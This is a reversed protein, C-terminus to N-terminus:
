FSSLQVQKKVEDTSGFNDSIKITNELHGKCALKHHNVNNKNAPIHFCGRKATHCICFLPLIEESTIVIMGSIM